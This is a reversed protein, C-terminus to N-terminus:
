NIRRYCNNKFNNREKIKKCKIQYNVLVENNVTFNNRLNTKINLSELEEKLEILMGILLNTIKSGTDRKSDIYNNITNYDEVKIERKFNEVRIKDKKSLSEYEPINVNSTDFLIIDKNSVKNKKKFLNFLKM